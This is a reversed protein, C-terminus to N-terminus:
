LDEKDQLKCLNTGIKPNVSIFRSEYKRSVVADILIRGDYINLRNESRLFSGTRRDYFVVLPVLKEGFRFIQSLAPLCNNDMFMSSMNKGAYKTLIIM